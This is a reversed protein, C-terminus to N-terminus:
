NCHLDRGPKMFGHSSRNRHYHERKLPRKVTGLILHLTNKEKRVLLFIFAYPGLRGKSIALIGEPNIM